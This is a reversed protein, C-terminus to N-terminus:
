LGLRVIPRAPTTRNFQRREVVELGAGRVARLEALRRSVSTSAPSRAPMTRHTRTPGVATSDLFTSKRRRRSAGPIAWPVPREILRQYWRFDSFPPGRPFMQIATVGRGESSRTRRTGPERV